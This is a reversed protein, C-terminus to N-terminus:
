DLATREYTYRIASPALTDVYLRYTKSYGHLDFIVEGPRQPPKFKVLSAFPLLRVRTPQAESLLYLGKKDDLFYGTHTASLRHWPITVGLEEFFGNYRFRNLLKGSHTNVIFANPQPKQVAMASVRQSASLEPQSSGFDYVTLALSDNLLLAGRLEAQPRQLPLAPGNARLIDTGTLVTRGDHALGVEVAPGGVSYGESLRRVRGQIDLLLVAGCIWDTEPAAFNLTFVLAKMPASYGLLVPLSAGSSIALEQGVAKYFLQKTVVRKAVLQHLSDRLVFTFYGQYGTATTDQGTRAVLRQTTDLRAQLQLYLRQGGIHLLTDASRRLPGYLLAAGPEAAPADAKTDPAAAAPSASAPAVSSYHADSVKQSQEAPLCGPLLAVLCLSASIAKKKM